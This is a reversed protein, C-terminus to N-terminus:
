PRGERAERLVAESVPRIGLRRHMGHLDRLFAKVDLPARGSERCLIELIEQNLSRRNGAARRKLSEHVEQPLNKITLNPM